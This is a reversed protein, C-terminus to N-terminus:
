SQYTQLGTVALQVSRIYDEASHPSIETSSHIAVNRLNRLQDILNTLNAPLQYFAAVQSAVGEFDGRHWVISALSAMVEMEREVLSWGAVVASSPHATASRELM